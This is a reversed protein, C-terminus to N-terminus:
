SRTKFTDDNLGKVKLRISRRVPNQSPPSALVVPKTSVPILPLGEAVINEVNGSVPDISTPMVIGGETLQLNSQQEGSLPPPVLLTSPTTLISPRVVVVPSVTTSRLQETIDGAVLPVIPGAPDEKVNTIQVSPTIPGHISSIQPQEVSSSPEGQVMPILLDTELNACKSMLVDGPYTGSSGGGNNSRKAPPQSGVSTSGIGLEIM